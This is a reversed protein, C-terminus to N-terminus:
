GSIPVGEAAIMRNFRSDESLDVLDVPKSVNFLLDSYFLFFEAPAIGEVALDIDNGERESSASSGFLLLRSMKYKKSVRLIAMKDEYTLM